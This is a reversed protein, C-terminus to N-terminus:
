FSHERWSNNGRSGGRTFICSTTLPSTSSLCVLRQFEVGNLHWSVVVWDNNLKPNLFVIWCREQHHTFVGSRVDRQSATENQRYYLLYRCRFGHMVPGRIGWSSEISPSFLLSAFRHSGCSRNLYVVKRLTHPLRENWSVMLFSHWWSLLFSFWVGVYIIKM